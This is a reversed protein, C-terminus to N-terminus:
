SVESLLLNRLSHFKSPCVHHWDWQGGKLKRPFGIIRTHGCECMARNGRQMKRGTEVDMSSSCASARDPQQGAAEQGEMDSRHQTHLLRGTLHSGRYICVDCSDLDGLTEWRGGWM